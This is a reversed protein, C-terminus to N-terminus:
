PGSGHARGPQAVGRTFALDVARKRACGRTRVGSAASPYRRGSGRDLVAQHLPSPIAGPKPSQYLIKGNAPREDRGSPPISHRNLRQRLEEQHGDTVLFRVTQQVLDIAPKPGDGRSLQVVPHQPHRRRQARQTDLPAVPDGQHSLVTRVPRADIEGGQTNTGDQHRDVGGQCGILGGVHDVIATGLHDKDLAALPQLPQQALLGRHWIHAFENEDVSGGEDSISEKAWSRSASLAWPRSSLELLASATAGGVIQRREDVGAARRAVGLPHHQGM